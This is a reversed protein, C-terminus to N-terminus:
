SHCGDTVDMGTLPHLRCVVMRMCFLECSGEGMNLTQVQCSPDCCESFPGVEIPHNKGEDRYRRMILQSMLGHCGDRNISTVFMGGNPLLEFSRRGHEFDASSM